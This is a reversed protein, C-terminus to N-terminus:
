DANVPQPAPEPAASPSRYPADDAGANAKDKAEAEYKSPCKTYVHEAEFLGTEADWTGEVALEYGITFTDPKSADYAVAVRIEPNTKDSITFKLPRHESEVSELMAHVKVVRGDFEGSHLESVQLEPIGGQAVGMAILGTLGALILLFPIVVKM